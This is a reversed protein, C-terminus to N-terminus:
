QRIHVFQWIIDTETKALHGEKIGCAEWRIQKMYKMM